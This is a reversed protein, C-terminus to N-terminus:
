RRGSNGLMVCLLLQQITRGAPCHCELMGTTSGTSCDAETGSAQNSLHRLCIVVGCGAKGSIPDSQIRRFQSGQFVELAHRCTKVSRFSEQLRQFDILVNGSEQFPVSGWLLLLRLAVFNMDLQLLQMSTVSTIM